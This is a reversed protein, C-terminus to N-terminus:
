KAYNEKRLINYVARLYTKECNKIIGAAAARERINKIRQRVEVRIKILAETTTKKAAALKADRILVENNNLTEHKMNYSDALAASTIQDIEGLLEELVLTVHESEESFLESSSSLHRERFTDAIRSIDNRRANVISELLAGEPGPLAVDDDLEILISDLIYCYMGLLDSYGSRLERRPLNMWDIYASDDNLYICQDLYKYIKSYDVTEVPAQPRELRTINLEPLALLVETIETLTSYRAVNDETSLSSGMGQAQRRQDEQDQQTKSRAKARKPQESVFRNFGRYLKFFMGKIAEYDLTGEQDIGFGEFGHPLHFTHTVKEDGKPLYYPRDEPAFPAIGVFDRRVGSALALRSINIM